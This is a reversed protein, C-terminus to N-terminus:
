SSKSVNRNLKYSYFVLREWVRPIQMQEYHNVWKHSIESNPKSELVITLLASSYTGLLPKARSSPPILTTQPPSCAHCFLPILFCSASQMYVPQQAFHKDLWAGAGLWCLSGQRSMLSWKQSGEQTLSQRNHTCTHIHLDSHWCSSDSWPDCPDMHRNLWFCSHTLTHLDTHLGQHSDLWVQWCALSTAQSGPICIEIPLVGPPPPWWPTWALNQCGWLTKPEVSLGTEMHMHTGTCSAVPSLWSGHGAVPYGLHVPGAVPPIQM